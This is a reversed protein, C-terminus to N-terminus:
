QWSKQNILCLLLSCLFLSSHISSLSFFHIWVLTPVEQFFDFLSLFVEHNFTLMLVIKQVLLCSSSSVCWVVLQYYWCSFCGTETEVQETVWGWAEPVVGVYRDLTKGSTHFSYLTGWVSGQLNTHQVSYRKLRPGGVTWFSSLRPVVCRAWCVRTLCLCCGCLHTRQNNTRQDNYNFRYSWVLLVFM